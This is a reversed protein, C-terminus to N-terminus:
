RTPHCETACHASVTHSRCFRKAMLEPTLLRALLRILSRLLSHCLVRRMSKMAMRGLICQSIDFAFMPNWLESLIADSSMGNDSIRWHWFSHGMLMNMSTPIYTSIRFVIFPVFPLLCRLGLFVFLLAWFDINWKSLISFPCFHTSAVTVQPFYSIQPYMPAPFHNLAISSTTTPLFHFCQSHISSM